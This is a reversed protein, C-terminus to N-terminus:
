LFGSANLLTAFVEQVLNQGYRVFVTPFLVRNIFARLSHIAKVEGIKVFGCIRPLTSYGCSDLFISLTLVFKNAGKILNRCDSPRNERFFLPV